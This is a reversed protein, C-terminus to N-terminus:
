KNRWDGFGYALRWARPLRRVAARRQKRNPRRGMTPFPAMDVESIECDIRCLPTPKVAAAVIEEATNM